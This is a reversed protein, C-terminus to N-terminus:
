IGIEPSDQPWIFQRAENLADLANRQSDSLKIAEV